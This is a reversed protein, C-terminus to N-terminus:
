ITRKERLSRRATIIEYAEDMSSANLIHGYNRMKAPDNLLRPLMGNGHATQVMVTTGQTMHYVKARRAHTMFDTPVPQSNQLDLIIDVIYPVSGVRRSVEGTSAYFEYWNWKGDFTVHLLTQEVNAWDM